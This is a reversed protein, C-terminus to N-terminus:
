SKGEKKIRRDSYPVDRRLATISSSGRSLVSDSSTTSFYYLLSVFEWANKFPNEAGTRADELVGALRRANSRLRIVYRRATQM